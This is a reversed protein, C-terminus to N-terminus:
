AYRKRHFEVAFTALEFARSSIAEDMKAFCDPDTPDVWEFKGGKPEVMILNPRDGDPPRISVMWATTPGITAEIRCHSYAKEDHFCRMEWESMVWRPKFWAKILECLRPEVKSM